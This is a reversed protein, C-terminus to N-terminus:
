EADSTERLLYQELKRELEDMKVPKSMYDTMGAALCRERDGPMALATLAIIPTDQLAEEKRIHRTAEIGDMIPMMVDMLIIDPREQQAAAIGERGNRAVFVQYGKYGLYEKLLSVIIDTDEVILVKGKHKTQVEHGPPQLEGTGKPQATQEELQWPLAITFRSGKGLKSEASVRGGHLRIMQAVLALGLGTGQFERALGANLQTFPKFLHKLDEKAIGIGTDWVTFTIENREPSGAVELGIQKGEETFKVANSLLNVLSQKLRREDGRVVKVGGRVTFSVNISKKQALEKIMRLSSQCLKEVSIFRFDLEMRGAEIKSVDLIDNILELLHRGSEKVIQVYKLQKDNLSGIIQEELSESIGLIANLPTRLEHSMNALFEDKVRLADEMEANALKLAQELNKHATIDRSASLILQRGNIDILYSRLELTHLEGTPTRFKIEFPQSEGSESIAAIYQKIKSLEDPPFIGMESINRGNLEERKINHLEEFFKNADLMTGNADMVFVPDPSAEFLLRAYTESERLSQEIQKRETVDMSIGVIRDPTGDEAFITVASNAIHRVSGDLWVIRYENNLLLNQTLALQTNVGSRKLDDPHFFKAWGEATGDFDERRIHHIVYMREDWLIRNERPIYEWVGIQGAHTALELRRKAAETQETRERVRDELEANLQRIEDEVLRRQILETQLENFLRANSMSASIRFALSEVFHLHEEDYANLDRHFIQLVGDVRGQSIIPAFIASKRDERSRGPPDNPNTEAYSPLVQPKGTRIVASVADRREPELRFAPLSTIDAEEGAARAFECHLMRSDADYSYVRFQDCSMHQLTYKYAIEFVKQLELTNSLERGAEVLLRLEENHRKLAHDAWVGRLYTQLREAAAELLFREEELFPGEDRAPREELYAVQVFGLTDDPLEFFRSQMWETEKFNPTAFQHGNYGVRAATIEPYQWAAPITDAMEQLAESEPRSYDMFIRSINQLFNLEKVRKGLEHILRKREEEARKRETINTISVIARSLDEEHGPVVSWTLAIDILEGNLKKNVGEWEFQLLGKAIFSLEQRFSNPIQESFVASLNTQLEAKNKAGFMKISAKNVDLVKVLSACEAVVEPHESFYAEFDTVGAQRLGDLRQKVGSFDEEWLSIPSDEFLSRYRRESENRADNAAKQETVDMITALIHKRGGIIIVEASYLTHRTEGTKTVGTLERSKVKGKEDLLRSIEGRQDSAAYFDAELSKKGVVEDREYEFMQLFSENADVLISDELTSITQATPSAHFATSFREESRRLSEEIQKWATIDEGISQYEVIEGREDFLARDTWKQWREGGNSKSTKYEYTIFPTERNLLSIKKRVLEKESGPILSYLNSGLLDDRTMQFYDCYFSNIFTLTGDSKFRCVMAPMDEAIIRYREESERLKLEAKKRKNIDEIQSIFYLPTGENDKVLAVALLAWVVEGNKHFYRKEMSYTRIEGSLMQKVYNLDADLDDPHTIDQFTKTLLEKQSYGLFSCLNSNVELWRGETSILAMGIASHQFANKFLQKSELLAEEARKRETIDEKVAVVHTITGDPSILPTIVQAEVYFSGDKRRNTVEGHWVNGALVTDWLEKYFSEDHRGSRVLERLTNGIAEAESYGTLQCFAPNVWEILGDRDQIVVANSAANLATAQLTMQEQAKKKETVDRYNIVIAEVAPESLMNTAIAEVWLWEGNKHRLRFIERQSEGPKEVMQKFLESTWGRDDPHMLEFIDRGIFEDDKYGLLNISSPSEWLLTGDPALLSINDLGNQILARFRKESEHLARKAKKQETIDRAIGRAIPTEVGEVRLSNNFEWIRTEGKATRFSMEGRARGKAKIEELYADFRDRHEPALFDRINASLLAKRSYGTLKVAFDNVSLLNGELDHTCMLIQSNEVLDRYRDESIRLAEEMQRRETVDQIMVLAAQRGNYELTHSTIEVDIIKGNKLQHRWGGSFQWPPRRSEVDKLLRPIDEQPRIDKITMGLFERRTYGYKKTVTDNVDLFALTELDYIWMPLSHHKFLLQFPDTNKARSKPASKKIM